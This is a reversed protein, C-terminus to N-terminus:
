RRGPLFGFARLSSRASSVESALMMGTGALPIRADLEEAEAAVGAVAHESRQDPFEVCGFM